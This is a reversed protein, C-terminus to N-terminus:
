TESIPKVHLKLGDVSVVQVRSGADAHTGNTEAQWIEGMVLVTGAPQLATMVEGVEGIMGEMGTTVRAKQARLGAGAVFLFFLATVATAVYIVGTNIHMESPLGSKRLLMLSGLLMAVVGGITLPGNTPTKVELVFLIIAFAILAVGAYNIPLTHMSYFAIILCIGGVIGPVGVGPSYFEFILGYIGLLMLIYAITPDSLLNLLKSVWGMELTETKANATQLTKAGKYLKVERGDIQRLLDPLDTAILDVINKKVAETEAVAVSNRVADEAWAVNRNREEAISRAFAAADNTVKTGMISDMSGQLNVPHAAGMNTAPAMAAVHGAMTIFVGASGAHAGQPSVYVVVPVPSEMINAVIVRTSKLLGGPTNLLIVLCEAKDRNAKNIGERIFDAVVPNIAGDVAQVVVKQCSSSAQLLCLAVALAAFKQVLHKIHQVAKM